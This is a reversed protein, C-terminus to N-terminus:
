FPARWRQVMRPPLVRRGRAIAVMERLDKVPWAFIRKQRYSWGAFYVRSDRLRLLYGDRVPLARDFLSHRMLPVDDSLGFARGKLPGNNQRLLGESIAHQVAEFDDDAILPEGRNGAAFWQQRHASYADVLSKHALFYQVYNGNSYKAGPLTFKRSFPLGAAIRRDALIPWYADGLPPKKSMMIRRTTNESGDDKAAYKLVYLLGYYDPKQVFSFGHPWFKWEQKETDAPPLALTKELDAVAGRFFLVAHWHARGRKSGYEGAIIYRASIGASRLRKFFKQVDSYVLTQSHPTEGRYTLTVAVYLDSTLAEAFCRGALDTLRNAECRKCKRCAVEIVEGTLKNTVRAPTLCM